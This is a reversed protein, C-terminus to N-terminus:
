QKAIEALRAVEVVDLFNVKGDGTVDFEKKFTQNNTLYYDLILKADDSNIEGNDNVDGKYSLSVNAELTTDVFGDKKALIKLVFNGPKPFEIKAQFKNNNTTFTFILKNSLETPTSGDLTYYANVNEEGTYIYMISQDEGKVISGPSYYDLPIKDISVIFYVADFNNHSGDPQAMRGNVYFEGSSRPTWRFGCVTDSIKDCSPNWVQQGDSKFVNLSPVWYSNEFYNNTLKFEFEIEEGSRFIQNAKPKVVEVTAVPLVAKLVEIDFSTLSNTDKGDSVTLIINSFKGVNSSLPKGSLKGTKTDFNAWNPKNTISFTLPDSDPDSAIPTFLYDESENVTTKPTGSITPPRNQTAQFSIELDSPLAGMIDTADPSFVSNAFNSDFNMKYNTAATSSVKFSILTEDKSLKPFPTATDGDAILYMDITKKNTNNKVSDSFVNTKGMSSPLSSITLGDPYKIRLQLASVDVTTAGTISAIKLNITYEGGPAQNTGVKEFLFNVQTAGIQLIEPVVDTTQRVSEKSKLSMYVVLGITLVVFILSIIVINRKM